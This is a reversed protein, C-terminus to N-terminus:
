YYKKIINPIHSDSVANIFAIFSDKPWKQKFKNIDFKKCLLENDYCASIIKKGYDNLELMFTKCDYDTHYRPKYILGKYYLDNVAEEILLYIDSKSKNQFFNIEKLDHYNIEKNNLECLNIKHLIIFEINKILNSEKISM